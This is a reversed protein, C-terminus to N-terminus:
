GMMDRSNGGGRLTCSGAMLPSATEIMLLVDVIKNLYKTTYVRVLFSKTKKNKKEEKKAAVCVFSVQVQLFDSISFFKNYNTFASLVLILNLRM